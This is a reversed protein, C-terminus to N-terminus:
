ISVNRVRPKWLSVSGRYTPPSYAHVTLHGVANRQEARTDHSGRRVALFTVEM